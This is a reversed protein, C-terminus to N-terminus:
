VAQQGEARDRRDRRPRHEGGPRPDDRRLVRPPVAHAHGGPAGREVTRSQAVHVNGAYHLEANDRLYSVPVQFPASWSGGGAAQGGNGAGASQRAPLLRRVTVQGEGQQGDVPLLYGTVQITDRNSLRQGGADIETNLRARILDGAGAHNGDALELEPAAVRGLRVLQTQVRRALEAAEENSGALLLVDRGRLFDALYDKAAKDFMAEHDAGRVRGRREYAAVAGVDGYRLRVSAEAEWRHRFRRIEELRAGGIEGALLAFIGGADVAGLQETDGVPHLRAGAHRAAQQLAAMDATSVQTAEDVVLVDDEHLPVPHRLEDSGEIKGLFQAINYSEALGETALSRAANTSTTLGIVRAGTFRTWLEAFVAMTHSKGSGAAANLPVTRTAAILMMVVAEAQEATLDTAAVAERAQAEGVLQRAPRRAEAVIHAELDLHAVTCWRDEGPPRFVSVRDSGRVGLSTVDAVDPAAGVQVVDTGARGSVALQAVEAVQDGTVGPGLARHVEFRLQAETWASHRAQVHAVAVRAARRMEALTLERGAVPALDAGAVTDAGDDAGARARQPATERAFREAHQHVLSLAQMEEATTQAEWARLREQPSLDHDSEQGGATRRTRAKARRTREGAQQHLLWLTRRSPAHGHAREYEAALETLEGSVSVGRSSFRQMVQQAVGGVEAGNGDARPVMVFGLDRLRKEVFRDPQAWVGLRDQYLDRGYLTRWKDDAGDARQVRNWITVHVHLHPDGDRSVHHLFRAATLGDADRWEGTTSSHYGTRTYASNAELWRVADDAADMLAQEIADARADLAAAEDDAGRDRARMADIRYSAHLLSVSKVCNITLDFYPVSKPTGKARERTRFEGIETASAYGGHEREYARIAAREAANVDKGQGRKALVEGGPGIGEMYLRRIVDADVEGALGLRAAARGTWRGPPEGDATYYAMAGACGKVGGSSVFYNVDHGSRLSVGTTM